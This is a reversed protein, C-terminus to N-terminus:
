RFTRWQTSYRGTLQQNYQSVYMRNGEVSEVYFAHGWTGGTSIGVDGPQPERHIWSAPAENVWNKASGYYM